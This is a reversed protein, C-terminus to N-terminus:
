APQDPVSLIGPLGCEGIAVERTTVAYHQENM